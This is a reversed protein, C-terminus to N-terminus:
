NVPLYVLRPENWQSRWEGVLLRGRNLQCCIKSRRTFGAMGDVLPKRGVVTESLSDSRVTRMKSCRRCSARQAGADRQRSNIATSM